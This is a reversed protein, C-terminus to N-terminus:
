EPQRCCGLGILCNQRASKQLVELNSLGLQWVEPTKVTQRRLLWCSILLKLCEALFPVTAFNYRYEGDTKSATTLLGQM